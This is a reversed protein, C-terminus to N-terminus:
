SKTLFIQIDEAAAGIRLSVAQTKSPINEGYVALILKYSGPPIQCSLLDQKVSYALLAAPSNPEWTRTGIDFIWHEDPNLRRPIRTGGQWQLFGNEIRGPQINQGEVRLLKLRCREVGRDGVNKIKGRIWQADEFSARDILDDGVYVDIKPRHYLLRIDDLFVAAIVASLTGFSMLMEWRNEGGFFLISACIASTVLLTIGLRTKARGRVWGICIGLIGLVLIVIAVTALCKLDNVASSCLLACFASDLTFHM